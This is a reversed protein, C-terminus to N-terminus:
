IDLLNELGYTLGKKDSVAKVAMIVGPMFSTRDTTSHRITLTQGETGFIVDQEAVYGPMRISHININGTSAGRAGELSLDSKMKENPKIIKELDQATKLATGSPADAKMPNHREIIEIDNMFRAATKSLEMMLVAGVAFNPAIIINKDTREVLAQITTLNDNSIGTTGVVGNMGYEVIDTINQMVTSPHTFDVIVQAGAAAAKKISEVTVVGIEGLGAILGIDEGTHDKDIAAVLELDKNASVAKVVESGMKGAAGCVGVKIM